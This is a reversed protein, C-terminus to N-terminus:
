VIKSRQAAKGQIWRKLRKYLSRIILTNEFALTFIFFNASTLFKCIYLVQLPKKVMRVHTQAHKASAYFVCVVDSTRGSNKLVSGCVTLLHETRNVWVVGSALELWEKFGVIFFDQKYGTWCEWKERMWYKWKLNGGWISLKWIANGLWFAYCNRVSGSLKGELGWRYTYHKRQPQKGM